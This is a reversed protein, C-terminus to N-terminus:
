AAPATIERILDILTPQPPLARIEALITKEEENLADEAMDPDIAADRFLAAVLSVTKDPGATACLTVIVSAHFSVPLPHLSVSGGNLGTAHQVDRPQGTGYIIRQRLNPLSTEITQDGDRRLAADLPLDSEARVLMNRYSPFTLKKQRPWLRTQPSFSLASVACHPLREALRRSLALAAFGGKSSGFLCLHRLGNAKAIAELGDLLDAFGALYYCLQADAIDLTPAGFDFTRLTLRIDWSLNVVLMDGIQRDRLVAIYGAANIKALAAATRRKARSLWLM